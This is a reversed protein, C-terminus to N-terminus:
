YHTTPNKVENRKGKNEYSENTKKKKKELNGKLPDACISCRYTSISSWKNFFAHKTKYM